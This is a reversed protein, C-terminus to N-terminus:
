NRVFLVVVVVNSLSVCVSPSSKRKRQRSWQTVTVTVTANRNGCTGFATLVKIRQSLIGIIQKNYSIINVPHAMLM